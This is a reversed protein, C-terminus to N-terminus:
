IDMGRVHIIINRSWSSSYTTYLGSCTFSFYTTWNLMSPSWIFSNLGAMLVEASGLRGEESWPPRRVLITRMLTRLKFMLIQHNCVVTSTQKCSQSFKRTEEAWKWGSQYIWFQAMLGVIMGNFGVMM